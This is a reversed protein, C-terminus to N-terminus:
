APHAAGATGLHEASPRGLGDAIVVCRGRRCLRVRWVRGTPRGPTDHDCDIDVYLRAARRQCAPCCYIPPRGRPHRRVTPNACGPAACRVEPQTTDGGTM